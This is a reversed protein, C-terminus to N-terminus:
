LCTKILQNRSIYFNKSKKKLSLITVTIKNIISYFYFMSKEKKKLAENNQPSQSLCTFKQSGM